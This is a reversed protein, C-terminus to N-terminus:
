AGNQRRYESPTAGTHSRFATAFNASTSFGLEDAIQTVSLSTERLLRCATKLREQRLYEFVTTGLVNRFARSLRKENTHLAEALAEMGPPHALRTKLYANAANVLTQDKQAEGGLRGARAEGPAEAHRGPVHGAAKKGLHIRIRALMEEPSFPKVVYDVAGDSLGELKNNLDGASTLYIIPIGATAPDNRILRSANFGNLVPMHVDMIILDPQLAQARHYGQAGDFAVSIRYNEKRILEILLRLEDVHDDVILLHPADPPPPSPLKM